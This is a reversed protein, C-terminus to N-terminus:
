VVYPLNFQDILRTSKIVFGSKLEDDTPNPPVMEFIYKGRTLTNTGLTGLKGNQFQNVQDLRVFRNQQVYLTSEAIQMIKLASLASSNEAAVISKSLAPVAIAAIIGIIVVVLLLEILSFGKQSNKKM